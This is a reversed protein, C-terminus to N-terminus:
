FQFYVFPVAHNEGLLLLWLVLGAVVATEVAWNRSFLHMLYRDGRRDARELFADLAFTVAMYLGVTLAEQGFRGRLTTIAELMALADSMSLARFILLALMFVHMTLFWSAVARWGRAPRRAPGRWLERWVVFYLGHLFGWTFRNWDAGHWLGSLTMTALINFSRRLRGARSGGLPIYLYDRFWTTLTIHWRRWLEQVNRSFYPQRFNLSLEIGLLRSAGRAIKSYGSFDGYVQFMFAYGGALATLGDVQTANGYISEAIPALTDAIAVKQFYGIAMLKLASLVRPSSIPERPTEIQPLLDAGREIPGAVLQPFFSIYVLFDVYSGCPRLQRRYVDITYAMSQFTYFSIGVPLIIALTHLSTGLGLAGLLANFSEVFFNYYKFFGLLSLNTVVSVVLLARRRGAGASRDISRGCLFDVTASFVILPLLTWNWSGYFVLSALLLFGNQGRRPLRWYLALVVAFFVLFTLSNFLM